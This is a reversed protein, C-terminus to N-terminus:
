NQINNIISMAEKSYFIPTAVRMHIETGNEYAIENHYLLHTQYRDDFFESQHYYIDDLFNKNFYYKEIIVYFILCTFIIGFIIKPITKSKPIQKLQKLFYEGIEIDYYYNKNKKEPEELNIEPTLRRARVENVTDLEIPQSNIDISISDTNQEIDQELKNFYHM